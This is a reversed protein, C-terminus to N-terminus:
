TMNLDKMNSNSKSVNNLLFNCDGIGLPESQRALGSATDLHNLIVVYDM